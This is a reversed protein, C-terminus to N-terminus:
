RISRVQHLQKMKEMAQDLEEKSYSHKKGARYAHILGAKAWLRITSAHVNCYEAAGNVSLWQKVSLRVDNLDNRLNTIEHLVDRLTPETM